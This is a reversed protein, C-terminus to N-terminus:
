KNKALLFAGGALLLLSFIISFVSTGIGPAGGQKIATERDMADKLLNDTIEPAPKLTQGDQIGLATVTDGTKFDSANYFYRFDNEARARQTQSLPEIFDKQTFDQDQTHAYGAAKLEDEDYQAWTSNMRIADVFDQSLTYDGIRGEGTFTKESTTMGWKLVGYLKEQETLTKNKQKSDSSNKERRVTQKSRSVRISDFTLGLEDDCSPKTLELPGCVIVIKGDNEASLPEDGVYVAEKLVSKAKPIDVFIMKLSAAFFFLGAIMLVIGSLKKLMKAVKREINLDAM